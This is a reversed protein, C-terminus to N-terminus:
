EEEVLYSLIYINKEIIKKRHHKIFTKDVNL